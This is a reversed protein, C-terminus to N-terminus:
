FVLCGFGSLRGLCFLCVLGDVNLWSCWVCVCGFGFCVRVWVGVWGVLCNTICILFLLILYFEVGLLVLVWFGGVFSFWM